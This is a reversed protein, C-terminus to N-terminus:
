SRRSAAGASPSESYVPPPWPVFRRKRQESPAALQLRQNPLVGYTRYNFPVRVRVRVPEGGRCAPYFRAALLSVRASRALDPHPASLVRVSSAEVRGNQDVVASLIVTGQIRRARLKPPYKPADASVLEPMESVQTTDYVTSDTGPHGICSTPLVRSTPAHSACAGLCGILVLPRISSM